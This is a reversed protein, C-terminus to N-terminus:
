PYNVWGMPHTSGQLIPDTNQGKGNSQVYVVTPSDMKNSLEYITFTNM